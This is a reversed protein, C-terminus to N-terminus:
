KAFIVNYTKKNNSTNEEGGVKKVEATIKVSGTLEKTVNITVPQSTGKVSSVVKKTQNFISKGTAVSVGSVAVTVNQEDNEGQNEITAVITTGTPNSVNTVTDGLSTGNIKM